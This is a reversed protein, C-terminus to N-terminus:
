PRSIMVQASTPLKVSQAVWAGRYIANKINLSTGEIGVKKLTKIFFPHQIKDFVKELDISLIMHNTDKGKNIHYIVNTKLYQVM